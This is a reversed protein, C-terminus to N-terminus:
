RYEIEINLQFATCRLDRRMVIYVNKLLTVLEKPPSVIIQLTGLVFDIEKDAKVRSLIGPPVSAKSGM